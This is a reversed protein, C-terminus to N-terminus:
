RSGRGGGGRMISFSDGPTGSNDSGAENDDATTQYNVNFGAAGGAGVSNARGATGGVGAGGGVVINLDRNNTDVNLTAGAGGGVGGALSDARGNGNTDVVTVGPGGGLAVGGSINTDGCAVAPLSIAAAAVLPRMKARMANMVGGTTASPMDPSVEATEAKKGRGMMEKLRQVAKVM